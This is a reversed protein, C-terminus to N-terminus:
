SSLRGRWRSRGSGNRKVDSARTSQATCTTSSVVVAHRSTRTRSSTANSSDLSQDAFDYSVQLSLEQSVKQQRCQNCARKVPHQRVGPQLGVQLSGSPSLGDVESKKRKRSVGEIKVPTGQPPSTIPLSSFDARSAVSPSQAAVPHVNGSGAAAASTDNANANANGTSGHQLSPSFATQRWAM